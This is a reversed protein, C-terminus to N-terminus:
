RVPEAEVMAERMRRLSDRLLRSVHPQSVGVREAIEVQSLDDFFRLRVVRRHREPLEDILRGVAMETDIDPKLNGHDLARLDILDPAEDNGERSDAVVPHNARTALRALGLREVPVGIRDAIEDNTPTRRLDSTLEETIPGLQVALEKVGRPVRVRWTHDRFHRRVEGMATPIAFSAFSRGTDPDYRDLAAVLGLAAAQTIDDALEGRGQYRRAVFEVIWYHEVILSRQLNSDRTRHYEALRPCQDPHRVKHNM